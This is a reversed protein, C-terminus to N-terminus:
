NRRVKCDRRIRLTSAPSSTVVHAFGLDSLIM